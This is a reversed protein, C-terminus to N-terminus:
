RHNTDKGNKGGVPLKVRFTSGKGVESEVEISGGHEKVIGHCISLGLGTGEGVEKTTFFPDFIKPLHEEAIGVGTDSITVVVYSDERETSITLKGGDPM